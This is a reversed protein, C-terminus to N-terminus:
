CSSIIKDKYVDPIMEANMSVSLVFTVDGSLQELANLVDTIDEGDLHSLKLFSDFFVTDIDHNGSLLGSVFGVFGDYSSVPYETVNILRINNNLEYMHKSSKDLYAVQGNSLKAAENAKELMIKTKGKGKEGCVIQIMANDEKFHINEVLM